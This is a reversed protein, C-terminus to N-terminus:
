DLVCYYSSAYIILVCIYYYSSRDLLIVRNTSPEGIVEAESMDQEALKAHYHDLIAEM